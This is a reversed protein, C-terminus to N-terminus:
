DSQNSNHSNDWKDSTDPAKIRPESLRNNYRKRNPLKLDSSGGVKTESPTSTEPLEWSIFFAEWEQLLLHFCEPMNSHFLTEPKM